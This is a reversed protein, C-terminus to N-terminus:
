VAEDV